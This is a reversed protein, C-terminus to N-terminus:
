EGGPLQVVRIHHNTIVAFLSRWDERSEVARVVLDTLATPALGAIRFLIVGAPAPLRERFALEGFDKDFTILLRAEVRAQHLVLRDDIGPAETRIWRVDHGRARLEEVADGPFNEDALIRM